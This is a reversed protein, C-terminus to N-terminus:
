RELEFTIVVENNHRPVFEGDVVAPAYRWESLARKASREFSKHGERNVIEIDQVFGDQDITFSLHVWRDTM